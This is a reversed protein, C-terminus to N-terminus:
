VAYLLDRALSRFPVASELHDVLVWSGRQDPKGGHVDSTRVARPKCLTSLRPM